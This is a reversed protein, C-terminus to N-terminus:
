KKEKIKLTQIYAAVDKMAQEDKLLKASAQMMKGTKDGSGNGRIGEKFNHLQKVIYYDPLGTLAPVKLEKLGSGDPQHCAFCNNYLVKGKVPDGALTPKPQKITQTRIYASLDAMQQTSFDQMLVKMAYGDADNVDGGRIGQKFKQMQSQLYWDSLQSLGPARESAHGAFDEGHCVICAAALTKGNAADGEVIVPEFGTLSNALENLGIDINNNSSFIALPMKSAPAADDALAKLRTIQEASFNMDNVNELGKIFLETRKENKTNILEVLKILEDPSKEFAQAALLSEIATVKKVIKESSLQILEPETYWVTGTAETWGGFLGFLLAGSTAKVRFNVQIKTWEDKTGQLMESTAEVVDRGAARLYVGREASKFDKMKVWMSYLYQGPELRQVQLVEAGGGNTSEVRVSHKGKRVVSSDMSMKVEAKNRHAKLIWRVPKGNKMEEFSPNQMLNKIKTEQKEVIGEKARDREPLDTIFQDVLSGGHRVFALNFAPQLAQKGNVKAKITKYLILGTESSSPMISLSLLIHRLTNADRENLMATLLQTNEATPPLVRVANKRVAASRHKLAEQAVKLAEPNSGDLQGLGHLSWLAHIVAPNSDLDVIEKSKAMEILLPIADMRKQQVIKQQAMMRWFLNNNNFTDVLKATNAKSLDLVKNAKGDKHTIRYIRGHSKDRLPNQMQGGHLMILNHWDLMYLQGDPGTIGKIPATYEDFSAVLSEGNRARYSGENDPELFYQGLLKGTPGGIFAGKNWYKEPFSRATYIDFNSGATYGGFQDGQRTITLPYYTWHDFIPLSSIKKLGVADFYPYPAHIHKAPGKNATSAFIEFDETFGLGWSNDGLNSIPTFNSGDVDMRWIGASFRNGGNEDVHGGGGLCGYIYNDFSYTLNSPGGHLDGLGWGTNIQKIVDAKDDGTTDKLFYMHPAQALIIGGNVWCIGTHLKFGEAFITFKDLIGDGNTDECIKIRDRGKGQPITPYEVTEAVFMRGRDDWTIDIPNVINPEHAILQAEFGDELVLCKASEQPSIQNQIMQPDQRGEFNHLSKKVDDRYTMLPIDKNILPTKQSAWVTAATIMKQFHRNEWVRGDHGHATYFVRGKGQNRVWTWPEKRGKDDRTQLDTRDDNLNKHVYTEDWTFFEPIGGLAPHNEQGKVHNAAFWGKGHGKFEGGILSVFRKDGEFAGCTNHVGVFGGGKEVFDILADIREPKDNAASLYLIVVDYKSLTEPNLADKDSTYTLEVRYRLFHPLLKHHNIRGNHGSDTTPGGGSIFLAKISEASASQLFLLCSIFLIFRM